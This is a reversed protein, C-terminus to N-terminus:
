KISENMIQSINTQFEQIDRNTIIISTDDAFLVPNAIKRITRSLDNIYILFVPFGTSFMISCRTGCTGM